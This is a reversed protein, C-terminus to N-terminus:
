VPPDPKKNPNHLRNVTSTQEFDKSKSIIERVDENPLTNRRQLDTQGLKTELAEFILSNFKQECERVRQLSELCEKKM